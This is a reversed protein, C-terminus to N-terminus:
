LGADGSGRKARVRVEPVSALLPVELIEELDEPGKVSRDRHEAVLAAALGLLLGLAAGALGFWLPDSAEPAAPPTAPRLLVFRMRHTADAQEVLAKALVNPVRSATAPDAHEFEVVFSSASMPRLKM